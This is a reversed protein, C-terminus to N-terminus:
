IQHPPENMFVKRHPLRDLYGPNKYFGYVVQLYKKFYESRLYVKRESNQQLITCIIFGQKELKKCYHAITQPDMKAQKKGGTWLKSLKSYIVGTEGLPILNKGNKPNGLINYLKYLPENETSSFFSSLYNIPYSLDSIAVLPISLYNPSAYAKSHTKLPESTQSKTISITYTLSQLLSKHDPTQILLFSTKSADLLHKSTKLAKKLYTKTPTTSTSLFIWPSILSPHSKVLDARTLLREKTSNNDKSSKSIKTLFKTLLWRSLIFFLSKDQLIDQLMDYLSIEYKSNRLLYKKFDKEILRSSSANWGNKLITRAGKFDKM